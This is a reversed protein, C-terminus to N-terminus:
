MLHPEATERGAKCSMIQFQLTLLQNGITTQCILSSPPRGLPTMVPSFPPPSEGIPYNATRQPAMPTLNVIECWM